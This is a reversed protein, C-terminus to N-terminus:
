AAQDAYEDPPPEPTPPTEPNLEPLQPPIEGLEESPLEPQETLPPEIDAPDTPDYENPPEDAEPQNDETSPPPTTSTNAGASPTSGGASQTQGWSANGRWNGDTVFLRRDSGRTLISVDQATIEENFPNLRENVMELWQDVFVTVYSLGNIRDTTNGPMM